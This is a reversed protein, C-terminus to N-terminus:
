VKQQMPQMGMMGMNGYAFGNMGFSFNGGIQGMYSSFAGIYRTQYEPNHFMNHHHHCCRHFRNHHHHHHHHIDSYNNEVTETTNTNECVTEEQVPATTQVPASSQAPAAQQPQKPTQAQQAQQQAAQQAKQEEQQKQIVDFVNTKTGGVYNGTNFNNTSFYNGTIM